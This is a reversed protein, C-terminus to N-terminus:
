VHSGLSGLVCSALSSAALFPMSTQVDLAYLVPVPRVPFATSSVATQRLAGFSGKVGDPVHFVAVVTQTLFNSEIVTPVLTAATGVSATEITKVDPWSQVKGDDGRIGVANTM